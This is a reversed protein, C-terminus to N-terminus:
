RPRAARPTRPTSRPSCRASCGDRAQTSGIRASSVRVGPSGAWSGSSQGIGLVTSVTSVGCPGPGSSRRGPRRLRRRQQDEPVAGPAAGVRGVQLQQGPPQRVPADRDDPELLRPPGGAPADGSRRGRQVLGPDGRHAPQAVLGHPRPRSNTPPRLAPARTAQRVASARRRAGPDDAQRKRQVQGAPRLLGPGGLQQGGAHGPQHQLAALVGEARRLLDPRRHAGRGTDAPRAAPASWPKRSALAADNVAASRRARTSASTPRKTPPYPFLTTAARTAGTM